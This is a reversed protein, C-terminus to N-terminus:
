RDAEKSWLTRIVRLKREITGTVCGLMGAIEANTYGEMKRLAITRLNPDDLQDLLRQFAEAMQAAFAPTPEAGAIQELGRGSESKGGQQVLVSEGRVAGGGRKKRCEQEIQDAAKRATLIVLLAWLNSRDKLQPFRGRAAARCFSDMVSLAVDEEDAVRRRSGRLKIRALRVLRKFYAEWLRQAAEADGERLRVIWSSSSDSADM